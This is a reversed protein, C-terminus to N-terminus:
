PNQSMRFKVSVVSTLTIQLDQLLVDHEEDVLDAVDHVGQSVPVVAHGVLVDAVGKQEHPLEGVVEDVEVDFRLDWGADLLHLLSLVDSVHRQKGEDLNQSGFITTAILVRGTM